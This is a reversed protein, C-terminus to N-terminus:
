ILADRLWCFFADDLAGEVVRSHIDSEQDPADFAYGTVSDMVSIDAAVWM